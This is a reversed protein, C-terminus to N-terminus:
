RVLMVDQAFTEVALNRTNFIELVVAYTGAAAPKGAQKGDWAADPTAADFVLAGWRDFVHFRRLEFDTGQPFLRDNVGDANPSFANPLYLRTACDDITLTFPAEAPCHGLQLGIRYTGATSLRVEDEFAVGDLTFQQTHPSSPALTFPLQDACVATDRVALWPLPFATRIDGVTFTDRVSCYGDSALVSYTGAAPLVVDLGAAGTDWVVSRLPRSSRLPPVFPFACAVTDAGLPPALDDPLVTLTHTLLDACGLVWVSHEIYFTGPADFCWNFTTDAVLTDVGPGSIRWEVHNALRNNLGEPRLCTTQCVTDPLSFTPTPFTPTNCYPTSALSNVEMVVSVPELPLSPESFWEWSEFSLPYDELFLCADHLICGEIQGHSDAKSVVSTIEWNGQNDYKKGSTIYFNSLEDIWVLPQYASYGNYWDLEGTKTIKGAIVPFDGLTTYAFYVDGDSSVQLATTFYKFNEAYVKKSWLVQMEPTLKVIIGDEPEMRPNSVGIWYGSRGLLYINGESDSAINRFTVGTANIDIVVNNVIEGFPTIELLFCSPSPINGQAEGLIITNGNPLAEMAVTLYLPAFPSHVTAKYKFSWLTGATAIDLLAVELKKTSLGENTAHHATMIHNDDIFCFDDPFFSLHSQKWSKQIGMETNILTLRTQTQLGGSGENYSFAHHNGSRKYKAHFIPPFDGRISFTNVVEGSSELEAIFVSPPDGGYLLLSLRGNSSSIGRITAGTPSVPSSFDLTRIYTNQAQLCGYLVLALVLILQKM